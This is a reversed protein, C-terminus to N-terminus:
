WEWDDESVLPADLWESSNYIDDADSHKIFIKEWGSRAKKSVPRILLGEDVVEFDLEKAELQAKEILIKPIRVGKSNGIRVLKAM